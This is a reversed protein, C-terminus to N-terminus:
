SDFVAGYAVGGSGQVESVVEETVRLNSVCM